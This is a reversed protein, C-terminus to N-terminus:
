WSNPRVLKNKPGEELEKVRKELQKIKEVMVDQVNLMSETSTVFTATLDLWVRGAETESRELIESNDCVGLTKLVEYHSLLEHQEETYSIEEDM